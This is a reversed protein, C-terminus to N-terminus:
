TQIVLNKMGLKGWTQTKMISEIALHMYHISGNEENGEVTQIKM